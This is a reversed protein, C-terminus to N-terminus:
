FSEGGKRHLADSTNNPTDGTSLIFTNILYTDEDKNKNYKYLIFNYLYINVLIQLTIKNIDVM